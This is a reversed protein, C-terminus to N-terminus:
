PKEKLAARPKAPKTTYSVDVVRECDFEGECQYCQRGESDGDLAPGFNWEWADDHKYGCHPRVPLQQLGTEHSTIIDTMPEFALREAAERQKPNM